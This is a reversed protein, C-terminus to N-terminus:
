GFKIDSPGDGVSNHLAASHCLCVLRASLEGFGSRDPSGSAAAAAAASADAAKNLADKEANHASLM